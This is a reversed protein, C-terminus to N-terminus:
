FKLDGDEPAMGDDMVSESNITPADEFCDSSSACGADEPTPCWVSESGTPCWVSKMTPEPKCARFEFFLGSFLNSRVMADRDHGSM